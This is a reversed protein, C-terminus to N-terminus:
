YTCDVFVIDPYANDIKSELFIALKQESHAHFREKRYLIYDKVLELEKGETFKRNKIGFRHYNDYIEIIDQM